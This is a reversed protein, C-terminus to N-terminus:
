RVDDPVRPAVFSVVPRCGPNEAGHGLALGEGRGIDLVADELELRLRGDHVYPERSMADPALTAWAM